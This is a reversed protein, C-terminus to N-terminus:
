PLANTDAAIEVIEESDCAAVISFEIARAMIDLWPSTLEDSELATVHGQNIKDGKISESRFLRNSIGIFFIETATTV